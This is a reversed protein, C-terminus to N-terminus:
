MMNIQIHNLLRGSASATMGDNVWDEVYSWDVYAIAITRDSNPPGIIFNIGDLDLNTKRDIAVLSGVIAAFDKVIDEETTGRSSYAIIISKDGGNKRGDAIRVSYIDVGVYRLSQEILATDVKKAPEKYQTPLNENELSREIEETIKNLIDTAKEIEELAINYLDTAEEKKESALTYDGANSAICSDYLIDTAQVLYNLSKKQHLCHERLKKPCQLSNYEEKIQILDIRKENILNCESKPRLSITDINQLDVIITSVKEDIEIGKNMFESISDDESEDSNDINVYTRPENIIQKEQLIETIQSKSQFLSSKMFIVVVFIIAVLILSYNLVKNWNFRKTQHHESNTM